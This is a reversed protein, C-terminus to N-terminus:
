NGRPQGVEDTVDHPAELNETRGKLHTEKFSPLTM